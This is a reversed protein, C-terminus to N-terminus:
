RARRRHGEERRADFYPALLATTRFKGSCELVIDVGHEKWPVEGPAATRRQVRGAQRRDVVSDRDGPDVDHDWRGHVSDFTSSTRRPRPAARRDRQHPRVRPGALGVGRAARASGHTGFGNIGIRISM